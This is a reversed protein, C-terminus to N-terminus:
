AIPRAPLPPTATSPPTTAEAAAVSNATASLVQAPTVSPLPSLQVKPTVKEGAAPSSRAAVRETALSAPLPGCLTASLPVPCSTSVGWRRKVGSSKLKPSWGVPLVAVGCDIVTVFVAPVSTVIEPTLRPPAAALLKEIM